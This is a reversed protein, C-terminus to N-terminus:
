DAFDASLGLARHMAPRKKIMDIRDIRDLIM